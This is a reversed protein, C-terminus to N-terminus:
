KLIDKFQDGITSGEKNDEKLIKDINEQEKQKKVKLISLKLVWRKPNIALVNCTVKDGVQYATTIDEKNEVAESLPVFGDVGLVNVVLGKENIESITAETNDGNKLDIRDWPNDILPKRSLSIKEKKEDIAIISVEVEDGIKLTNALNDNPNYSYESKHLLGKVDEALELLLGFELKNTLKGKVTDSVKHDKVYLEFPSLTLAKHSLDLKDNEKKIVKVELKEGTKLVEELKVFKHSYENAKMLGTTYEFKIIAGYNQVKIVEGTLVDGVNIKAMEASRNKYYEMDLVARQSVKVNIRKGGDNVDTVVVDINSGTEPKAALAKPLFCKIGKYEVEYGKEFEKVVKVNIPNGNEKIEKLENVVEDNIKDLCSLLILTSEHNGEKSNKTVKAKITDGVKLDTEKFSQINKDKTYYNLYIQAETNQQIDVYAVKDKIQVVVGEVEDGPRVEKFGMEDLLEQM